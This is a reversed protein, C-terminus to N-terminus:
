SHGLLSSFQLNNIGLNNLAVQWKDNNEQAFILDQDCESAIWFNNSMERELEGSKWVTCGLILLSNSPGKGEIIDEIIEPDSSIAINNQLQFLPKKIYDDSHLLVVKNLETPGGFHIPIASDKVTKAVVEDFASLLVKVPVQNIPHNVIVGISGNDTHSMVYILSKYFIDGYFVYPSAILIKCSLNDFDKSSM